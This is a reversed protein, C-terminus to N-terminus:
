PHGPFRVGFVTYRTRAVIAFSSQGSHSDSTLFDKCLEICSSLM